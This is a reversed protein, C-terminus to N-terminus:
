YPAFQNFYSDITLEALEGHSLRNASEALWKAADMIDRLSGNRTQRATNGRTCSFHGHPEWKGDTIKLFTGRGSM